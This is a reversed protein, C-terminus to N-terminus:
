AQGLPASLRVFVDRRGLARVLVGLETSHGERGDIRALWIRATM